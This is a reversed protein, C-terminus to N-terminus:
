DEIMAVLRAVAEDVFRPDEAGLDREVIEVTPPTAKRLAEFFAADGEPDRLAGGEVGYRSTGALPLMLCARGRTHVLRRGIEVALAELQRASLRPALIVPNHFTHLNRRWAEPVTNAPVLLGIHELGGPCLVQPLGLDGAVTLRTPDGARLGHYMEDALEGMAYDFVAGIVGDRMLQEMARGGSGVAHFVIVEYGREHFREIAHMAGETLVGLNTMGILPRGNSATELTVSSSAMGFAAAAANALIKRTLPNLGLIDSVSFMMTVDKIGVFASVDGSALTSVMVKPFGYPLAQMVQTCNPTGQTGGLGVVAHVRGQQVAQLLLKTAGAVMVPSAKQRTAGKLLETLPTGGARAVEERTVDSPVGPEGVVGIDVLLAKGGLAEVQERMWGAEPGKTDLTCLIAVTRTM